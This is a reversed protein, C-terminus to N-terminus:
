AAQLRLAEELGADTSGFGDSVPWIFAISQSVGLAELDARPRSPLLIARKAQPLFRGYDALQGISMRVAERTTTAKAEVLLDLTADYLDTFLPEAEGEPRILLRFAEHGVHRLRDRLQLVLKAERREAPHSATARNVYFTETWQEEIELLEVNPWTASELRSCIRKMLDLAHAMQRLEVAMQSPDCQPFPASYFREAAALFSDLEDVNSAGETAECMETTYFMREDGALAMIPVCHTVLLELAEPGFVGLQAAEQVLVLPGPQGRDFGDTGARLAQTRCRRFAV